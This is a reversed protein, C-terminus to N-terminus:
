NVSPNDINTSMGHARRNMEEVLQENLTENDESNFTQSSQQLDAIEGPVSEPQTMGSYTHPPSEVSYTAM